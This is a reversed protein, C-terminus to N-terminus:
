ICCGLCPSITRYFFFTFLNISVHCSKSLDSKSNVKWEWQIFDVCSREHMQRPTLRVRPEACSFEELLKGLFFSSPKKFMEKPNPSAKPNAKPLLLPNWLSCASEWIKLLKHLMTFPSRAQTSISMCRLYQFNPLMYRKDKLVTSLPMNRERKRCMRLMTMTLICENVKWM